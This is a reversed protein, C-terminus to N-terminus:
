ELIHVLLVTDVWAVVVVWFCSELGSLRVGYGPLHSPRLILFLCSFLWFRGRLLLLLSVVVALVLLVVQM